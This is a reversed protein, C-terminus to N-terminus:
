AVPAALIEAQRELICAEKYAPEHFLRVATRKYSESMEVEKPKLWLMIAAISLSLHGTAKELAAWSLTGTQQYELILHKAEIPAERDAKLAFDAKAKDFYRNMATFYLQMAQIPNLEGRSVRNLMVNTKYRMTETAKGESEMNSDVKNVAIPLEVTSNLEADLSLGAIQSRGRGSNDTINSLLSSHCAANGYGPTAKGHQVLAGQDGNVVYGSKYYAVCLMWFLETRRAAHEIIYDKRSAVMAVITSAHDLSDKAPKPIRAPVRLASTRNDDYSTIERKVKDGLARRVESTQGELLTEPVVSLERPQIVVRLDALKKNVHSLIEQVHPNGLKRAASAAQHTKLLIFHLKIIKALRKADTDSELNAIKTVYSKLARRRGTNELDYAVLKNDGDYRHTIVPM